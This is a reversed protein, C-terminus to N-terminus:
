PRDPASQSSVRDNLSIRTRLEEAWPEPMEPLGEVDPAPSRLLYREGMQSPSRPEKGLVIDDCFQDMQEPAVLYRRAQWRIPLFDRYVGPSTDSPGAPLLICHGGILRLYGSERNWIGTCGEQYRSYRGDPLISLVWGRGGRFMGQLYEGALEASTPSATGTRAPPYRHTRDHDGFPILLGALLGIISVLALVDLLSLSPRSISRWISEM